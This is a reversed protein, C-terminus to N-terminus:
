RTAHSTRKSGRSASGKPPAKRTPTKRRAAAAAPSDARGHSKAVMVHEADSPIGEKLLEKKSCNMVKIKLMVGTESQDMLYKLGRWSSELKQFDPHHLVENLQLSILHDLRAIYNGITREVDKDITVQKKLVENILPRLMEAVRDKEQVPSAAVIRDLLEADDELNTFTAAAGAQTEPM